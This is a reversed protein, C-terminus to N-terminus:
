SRRRWYLFIVFASALLLLYPLVWPLAFGKVPPTMLIHTGYRQQLYAIIAPDDWGAQIKSRVVHRVAVAMPADSDNVSQSQCTICRLDAGLHMAREEWATNELREEPRIYGAQVSGAILLFILISVRM